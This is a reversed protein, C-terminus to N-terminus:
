AGAAGDAAAEAAVARRLADPVAHPHGSTPATLAEDLVSRRPEEIWPTEVWISAVPVSRLVVILESPVEGADASVSLVSTPATGRVPPEPGHGLGYVVGIAAGGLGGCVGVTAAGAIPSLDGVDVFMGVIAFPVFGVAFGIASWFWGAFTQQDALGTALPIGVSAHRAELRQAGRGVVALDHLCDVRLDDPSVGSAVLRDAVTRASGAGAYSAVLRRRGSDTDM